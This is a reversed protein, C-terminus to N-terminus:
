EVPVLRVIKCDEILVPAGEQFVIECKITISARSETRLAYVSGSILLASMIAISALLLKAKIM